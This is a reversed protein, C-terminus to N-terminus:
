QLLWTQAPKTPNHTTPSPPSPKIHILDGARLNLDANPEVNYDGPDTTPTVLYGIVIHHKASCEAKYTYNIRAQSGLRQNQLGLHFPEVESFISM